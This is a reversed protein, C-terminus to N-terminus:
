RGKIVRLAEIEFILDANPPIVAGAGAKGYGLGSPIDIRRKEGAKIGLVGQAFGPVVRIQGLNVLFPQNRDYSSDFKKGNSKLKGTYHLEVSDGFAAAPGSGAKTTTVRAREIKRLEVDFLLTAGPPIDAGAGQDGYGLDAPITLKRKGGVKM